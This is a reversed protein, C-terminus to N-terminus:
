STPLTYESYAVVRQASEEPHTVWEKGPLTRVTDKDEM